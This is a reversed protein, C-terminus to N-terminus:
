ETQGECEDISNKLLKLAETLSVGELQAGAADFHGGGGLKELILQVNVSGDSRSSIHVAGDIVCLVFSASVYEVTLLRDAAKSAAIKDKAETEDEYVSIVYKNKYVQVNNEFVTERMFDAISTGFLKVADQPNANEDRLYQAAAFTKVGTNKTFQKTDLMLGAFLLDAEEKILEGQPLVQELMESMLEAVSSASPDIYAIKPPNSYEGTKRHHDIVAFSSASDYLEPLEFFAPNNVDCVVLLTDALMLEHAKERDIFMDNYGECIGETSEFIKKLNFDNKNVVIYVDKELYKALRSVAVCSAVSDHDAYKHGMVLVNGSAKILAALENAIVRSRVKTKKSVSQSKGGYYEVSTESKVVAQDGGRQLAIDLAYRAASEKEAYTGSIKSVGISATFPMTINDLEIERIKRLIDFRDEELKDFYKQEFFVIFKDKDYEKLIGGISATWQDLESGILALATRQKDQVFQVAESFNDIVVFAVMLSQMEIEKQAKYLDTKDEWVTISHRKGPITGTRHSSIEYEVGRYSFPVPAPNDRFFRAANLTSSFHESLKKGYLTGKSEGAANVFAKNYWIIQGSENIIAVPSKYSTIFDLTFGYLMPSGGTMGSKKMEYRVIVANIVAYLAMLSIGVLVLSYQKRAACALVFVTLTCLGLLLAKGSFFKKIFDKFRIM